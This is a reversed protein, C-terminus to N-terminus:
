SLSEILDVYKQMADKTSTVKLIEASVLRQRAAAAPAPAALTASM